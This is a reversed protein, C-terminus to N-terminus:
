RLMRSIVFVDLERVGLPEDDYEGNRMVDLVYQIVMTIATFVFIVPGFSAVAVRSRASVLVAASLIILLIVSTVSPFTVATSLMVMFLVQVIISMIRLCVKLGHASTWKIVANVLVDRVSAPSQTVPVTMLPVDTAGTSMRSLLM